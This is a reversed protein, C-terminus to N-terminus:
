MNMVIPSILHILIQRKEGKKEEAYHHKACDGTARVEGVLIHLRAVGYVQADEVGPPLGRRREDDLACLRPHHCARLLQREEAVWSCCAQVDLITQAGCMGTAALLQIFQDPYRSLNRGIAAPGPARAVIPPQLVHVDVRPVAIGAP